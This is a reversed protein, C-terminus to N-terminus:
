DSVLKLHDETLKFMDWEAVFQVSVLKLHDDTLKLVDWEAASHSNTRPNNLQPDSLYVDPYDTM